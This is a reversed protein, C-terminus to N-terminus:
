TSTPFAASFKTSAGSKTVAVVTFTVLGDNTPDAVGTVTCARTEPEQGIQAEASAAIGNITSPRALKKGQQPIGVGYTPGLHLFGGVATYLRRFCRKKYSQLGSDIAYDGDSVPFVGLNQVVQPNSLTSAGFLSQPNSFDRNPSPLEVSPPVYVRYVGYCTIPAAM